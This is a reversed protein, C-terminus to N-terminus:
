RFLNRIMVVQLVGVVLMTCSSGISFYTVRWLNTEQIYEHRKYKNVLHAQQAQMKSFQERITNLSSRLKEVDEYEDKPLTHGRKMFEEDNYDDIGLDFYVTKDYFRDFRNDFCIEHAGKEELEIEEEVGPTRESHFLQKGSPSTIMTTIEMNGGAIVQLDFDMNNGGQIDKYFCDRRGKGVIFSVGDESHTSMIDEDEDMYGYNLLLLSLLLFSVFM